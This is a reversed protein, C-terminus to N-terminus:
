SYATSRWHAGTYLPNISLHFGFRDLRAVPARNLTEVCAARTLLRSLFEHKEALKDPVPVDQFVSVEQWVSSPSYCSTLEM